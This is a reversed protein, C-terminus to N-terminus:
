TTQEKKNCLHYPEFGDCHFQGTSLEQLWHLCQNSCKNEAMPLFHM